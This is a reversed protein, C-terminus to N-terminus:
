WDRPPREIEGRAWRYWLELREAVRSPDHARALHEVARLTMETVQGPDEALRRVARAFDDPSSAVLLERGARADLGSAAAPTAVVAVGRAWAELIKMRVGSAVQLPVVLIAGGPFAARSEAPPPHSVVGEARSPAADGFRHLVARPAMARVAPWVEREFWSAGLVNPPWGRGALLVLAPEGELSTEGPPLRAPFPARVVAVKEPDGALEALAMADEITLALTVVSQIVARAEFARLRRAELRVFPAAPGRAFGAWLRSEVNQARLVLPVRAAAVADRCNTFAQLQEAHVLDFREHELLFRVRREVERKRHREVSAPLGRALGTSVSRLWPRDRAPVLHPSCIEALAEAARHRDEQRPDVPAVFTVEHGRERLARLTESVLLRGGDRAPWPAKTGVWLLKM